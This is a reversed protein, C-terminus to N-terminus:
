RDELKNIGFMNLTIVPFVYNHRVFSNFLGLKSLSRLIFNEFFRIWKRERRYRGTRFDILYDPLSDLSHVEEQLHDNSSFHGAIQDFDLDRFVKKIGNPTYRFYDDPYGHIGFVFPVSVFVVGGKKLLKTINEAAKFPNECHELVSGCIITSFRRGKLVKDVVEFDDCLNVVHDVGLGPLMDIGVYVEGPFLSKFDFSVGGDYVKSGVELLPGKLDMKKDQVAKFQLRDGM